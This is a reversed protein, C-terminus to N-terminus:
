CRVRTTPPAAVRAPAKTTPPAAAAVTTPAATTTKAEMFIQTVWLYGEDDYAAGMGAYTFRKNLINTRHGPSKMLRAHMDEVNSNYAVNEAMAGANSPANQRLNPRHRLNKDNAMSKAWRQAEAELQSDRDLVPTANDVRAGNVLVYLRNEDQAPDGAQQPKEIPLLQTAVLVVAMVLVLIGLGILVARKRVM